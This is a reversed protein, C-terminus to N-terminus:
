LPFIRTKKQVSAEPRHVQRQRLQGPRLNATTVLAARSGRPKRCRRTSAWDLGHRLSATQSSIAASKLLQRNGERRGSGARRADTRKAGSWAV